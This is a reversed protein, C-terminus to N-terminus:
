DCLFLYNNMQHDQWYLGDPKLDLCSCDAARFVPLDDILLSMPLSLETGYEDLLLRAPMLVKLEARRIPYIATIEQELCIKLLDHIYTASTPSPLPQLTSLGPLPEYDGMILLDPKFQSKARYAAASAAGTLLIKAM